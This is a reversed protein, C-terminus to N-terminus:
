LANYFAKLEDKVDQPLLTDRLGMEAGALGYFLQLCASPDVQQRIRLFAEKCGIDRLQQPTHIGVAQLHSALVKGVNPLSLLGSM